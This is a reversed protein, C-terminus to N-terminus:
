EWVGFRIIRKEPCTVIGGKVWDQGSDRVLFVNLSSTHTEGAMGDWHRYPDPIKDLGSPQGEGDTFQIFEKYPMPMKNSVKDVFQQCFTMQPMGLSPRGCGILAFPIVLLSFVLLLTITKPM